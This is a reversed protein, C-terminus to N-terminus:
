NDGYGIGAWFDGSKDTVMLNTRGTYKGEATEYIKVKFKGYPIKYLKWVEFEDVFREIGAIGDIKIKTWDDM